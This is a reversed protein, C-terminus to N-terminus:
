ITYVNVFVIGHIEDTGTIRPIRGNFKKGVYGAIHAGMSFGIVHVSDLKLNTKDLLAAILEAVYNGIIKCRLRAALYTSDLM